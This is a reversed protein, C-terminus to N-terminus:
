DARGDLWEGWDLSDLPDAPVLESDDERLSKIRGPGSARSEFRVTVWGKGAGQVWGHGFEPHYVDQTAQWKGKAPGQATTVEIAENAAHDSVGTEYDTNAPAPKM